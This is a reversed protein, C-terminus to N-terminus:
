AQVLANNHNIADSLHQMAVEVVPNLLQRGV